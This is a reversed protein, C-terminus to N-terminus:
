GEFWLSITGNPFKEAGVRANNSNSVFTSNQWVANNGLVVSTSTSVKAALFLNIQLVRSSNSGGGSVIQLTANGTYYQNEILPPLSPVYAARGSPIVARNLALYLQQVVGGLLIASNQLELTRRSDVWVSMFANAALPFLFIQAILVPIMIAYEIAIHAM